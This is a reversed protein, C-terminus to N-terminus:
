VIEVNVSHGVPPADDVLIKIEPTPLTEGDVSLFELTCHRVTEGERFSVDVQKVKLKFKM